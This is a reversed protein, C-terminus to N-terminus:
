CGAKVSQFETYIQILIMAGRSMTRTDSKVRPYEEGGGEDDEEAEEAASGISCQNFESQVEIPCQNGPSQGRWNTGQGDGEDM